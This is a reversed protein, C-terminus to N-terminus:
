AVLGMGVDDGYHSKPLDRLVGFAIPPYAGRQAFDFRGM